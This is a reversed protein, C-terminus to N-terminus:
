MILVDENEETEAQLVQWKRQHETSWHTKLYDKAASYSNFYKKTLQEPSELAEKSLIKYTKKKSEPIEDVFSFLEDPRTHDVPRKNGSINLTREGQWNDPGKSQTSGSEGLIIDEFDNPTSEMVTSIDYFEDPMIEIGANMLDFDPTSLKENDPLNEFQGRSFYDQITKKTSVPDEKGFAYNSIRYNTSAKMHNNGLKEINKNLPILNQRLELYGSPHIFIQDEEENENLSRLSEAGSYEKPLKASWNGSQKIQIKLKELLKDPEVFVPAVKQEGGWTINFKIKLSFFLVKIKAYGKARWPEPGSLLFELGVGFFSRGRYSVDVSIRIDADFYFPDFQLLANFGVFGYARAHGKKVVLEASVGIQYSNSTIAQYYQCSLRIDEGKKILATVRPVDPFKAPKKYRPHYGGVSLLFQPHSGWNLMFAFGGTLSVEVLNSDRLRGEILIYSAAFNFDGFVDVHMEGLSKEADKGPLYVGLSGLLIFRGKFPMEILFGIDIEMVTPEGYGFKFFPAVVYHKKQPPFVARLDSIIKSSNEIVNEPFMVSNIAGTQIRERLIDVKMTRYIGIIGGVANLTFGFPLPFGPDFFVSISVLMSFGKEENPLRTNILGIATIGINLDGSDLEIKLKFDLVGAYRHNEFDLELFGGGSIIESDISLAVGKPPTFGFNFDTAGLDGGKDPMSLKMGLGTEEVKVKVPGLKSSFTSLVKLYGGLAGDKTVPGYDWKLNDLHFFDLDKHIPILLEYPQKENKGTEDISKGEMESDPQIVSQKGELSASESNDEKDKLLDLVDKLTDVNHDFYFGKKRTYGASLSFKLPVDGSPLIENLFGDGDGGSIVVANDKLGIEFGGDEKSLFGNIQIEGVALRTGSENPLNYSAGTEPDAKRKLTLELKMDGLINADPLRNLFVDLANGSTTKIKLEWNDNFQHTYTLEGNLSIFLGGLSEVKIDSNKNFFDSVEEDAVFFVTAGLRKDFESEQDEPLKLDFSFARESVLDAWNGRKWREVTTYYETLIKIENDNLKERDEEKKKLNDEKKKLVTEVRSWGEDLDVPFNEDHERRITKLMLNGLITDKLEITSDEKITRPVTSWGVLFRSEPMRSEMATFFGGLVTMIQSFKEADEIAKLGSELQHSQTFETWFEIIKDKLDIFYEIPNTILEWINKVVIAPLETVVYVPADYILFHAVDYITEPVGQDEFGSRITVRAEALFGLLQSIWYFEPYHLRIYNTTNLELFLWIYTDVDKPDDVVAKIFEKLSSYIIKVDNVASQFAVDDPNISKQYQNINNVSDEPIDLKTDTDPDLGLDLLTDRRVQEDEMKEKLWEVFEGIKGVASQLFGQNDM